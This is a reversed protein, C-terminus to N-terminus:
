SPSDQVGKKIEEIVKINKNYIPMKTRDQFEWKQHCNFCLLNINDKNYRHKPHAGKTLIHSCFVSKFKEGLYIHCNECYHPRENWIELFFSQDNLSKLIGKKSRTPITYLKKPKSNAKWYTSRHKKWCYQCLYEKKNYIYRENNCLKCTGKEYNM